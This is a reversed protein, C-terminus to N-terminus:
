RILHNTMTFPLASLRLSRVLSLCSSSLASTTLFDSPGAKADAASARARIRLSELHRPLSSDSRRPHTARLSSSGAVVDEDMRLKQSSYKLVPAQGSLRQLCACSTVMLSREPTGEAAPTSWMSEFPLSLAAATAPAPRNGVSALPPILPPRGEPAIGAMRGSGSREAQPPVTPPMTYSELILLHTSSM